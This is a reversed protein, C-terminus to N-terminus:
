SILRNRERVTPSQQLGRGHVQLLTNEQRLSSLNVFRMRPVRHSARLPKTRLSRATQMGPERMAADHCPQQPWRGGM